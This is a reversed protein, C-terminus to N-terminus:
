PRGVRPGPTAGGGWPVDRRGATRPQRTDLEWPGRYRVRWLPHAPVSGLDGRGLFSLAGRVRHGPPAVLNKPSALVKRDDVRSLTLGMHFGPIVGQPARVRWAHRISTLNPPGSSLYA